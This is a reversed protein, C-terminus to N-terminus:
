GQSSVAYHANPPSSLRSMWDGAPKRLRNVSARLTHSASSKPTTRHTTRPPPRRQKKKNEQRGKYEEQETESMKSHPPPPPLPYDNVTFVQELHESEQSLSMPDSVAQAKHTLCKVIVATHMSLLLLPIATCALLIHCLMRHSLASTM